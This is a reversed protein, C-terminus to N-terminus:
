NGTRPGSRGLDQLVLCVTLPFVSITRLLLGQVNMLSEWEEMLEAENQQCKTMEDHYRQTLSHWDFLAIKEAPDEDLDLDDDEDSHEGKVDAQRHQGSPPRETDTSSPRQPPSAHQEDSSGATRSSDIIQSNNM